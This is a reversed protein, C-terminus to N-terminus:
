LNIILAVAPVWTALEILVVTGWIIYAIPPEDRVTYFFYGLVGGVIWAVLGIIPLMLVNFPGGGNSAAIAEDLRQRALLVLVFLLLNLVVALGLSIQAIRDQWLAQGATETSTNSM